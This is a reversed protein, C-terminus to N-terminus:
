SVMGVTKGFNGQQVVTESLGVLTNFSVQLWRPDSSAVMGDYAQLKVLFYNQFNIPHM